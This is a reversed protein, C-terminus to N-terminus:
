TAREPDEERMVFVTDMFCGRCQAVRRPGSPCRPSKACRKCSTTSAACARPQRPCLRTWNMVGMLM